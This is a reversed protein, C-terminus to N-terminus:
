EGSAEARRERILEASLRRGKAVHERVMAQARAVARQPTLMRVQGEELVLVVKDGARLGLAKRYGAPIVLRGGQGLHTTIESM